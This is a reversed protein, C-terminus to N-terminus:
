TFPSLRILRPVVYKNKVKVCSQSLRERYDSACVFAPEDCRLSERKIQIIKRLYFTKTGSRLTVLPPIYVLHLNELSTM